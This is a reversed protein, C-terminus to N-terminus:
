SPRRRWGRGARGKDEGIEYVAAINPHSLSGATRAERRFRELEDPDGERLLKLAVWRGLETDYAKWVEGGGGASEAKGRPRGRQAERPM